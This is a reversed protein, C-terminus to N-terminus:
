LFRYGLYGVALAGIIMYINKEKELNEKEKERKKNEEQVNKYTYEAYDKSNKYDTWAGTPELLSDLSIEEQNNNYFYNDKKSFNNRTLTFDKENTKQQPTYM